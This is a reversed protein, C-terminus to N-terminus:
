GKDRRPFVSFPKRRIKGLGEIENKVAHSHVLDMIVSIGMGHAEDILQKLEEPTGFRSSPAFFGSVHYGFSGYYPHEPIAMLQLTNYGAKKIRPLVNQRFENFTHVREEEGAMGVHSEYILPAEGNRQFDSNGWDYGYEPAWVQANFVLTKEDQVVRNCWAPIRKGSGGNWHMSFAYLDGHKITDKSLYLEWNGNGTNKLQFNELEQWNNFSGTLYIKTANPAWDRIVWGEGTKHLGYWKHGQAFDVLSTESCLENEKKEAFELWSLITPAHPELWPDNAVFLPYQM